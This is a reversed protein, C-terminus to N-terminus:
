ENELGPPSNKVIAFLSDSLDGLSICVAALVAQLDTM